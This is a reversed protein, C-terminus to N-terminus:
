VERPVLFAIAGFGTKKFEYKLLRAKAHRKKAVTLLTKISDPACVDLRNIQLNLINNITQEDAKEGKGQPLNHSLDSSAIILTKNLETNQLVAEALKAWDKNESGFVIPLIKFNKLVIQMFPLQAEISHEFLHASDRRFFRPSFAMIKAALKDDVKTKGLSTEWVGGAWVAVGDFREYHSDALIIVTKFKRGLIARYGAAAVRGSFEYSAHPLILGFIDQM